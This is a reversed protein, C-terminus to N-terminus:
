TNIARARRLQLALAQRDLAVSSKWTAIKREQPPTLWDSLTQWAEHGTTGGLRINGAATVSIHGGGAHMWWLILAAPIGPVRDHFTCTGDADITGAPIGSASLSLLFAWTESNTTLYGEGTSIWYAYRQSEEVRCITGTPLPASRSESEAWKHALPHWEQLPLGSALASAGKTSSKWFLPSLFLPPSLRDLSLIELGFLQALVELQGPHELRVQIASICLDSAQAATHPLMVNEDGLQKLLAARESISFMGSIRAGVGSPCVAITRPFVALSQHPSSRRQVKILWGGSLLLRQVRWARVNVAASAPLVHGKLDKFSLTARRQYRVLLAESIWQLPAGAPHVVSGPQPLTVSLSSVSLMPLFRPRAAYSEASGAARAGCLEELGALTGGDGDALWEGPMQLRLPPRLPIAGSLKIAAKAAGGQKNSLELELHRANLPTDVSGLPITFGEDDEVLKGSAIVSGNENTIRYSGETAGSLRVRPISAPNLLLLQGYWAGGSVSLRPPRWSSSISAGADDPLASAISALTLTGVTPLLLIQWSNRADAFSYPHCATNLRAAARVISVAVKENVLLCVSAGDHHDSSLSYTGHIDPFLAVCGARLQRWLKAHKLAPVATSLMLLNAPTWGSGDAPQLWFGSEGRDALPRARCWSEVLSRGTEDGVLFIEPSTTDLLDLGFSFSGSGAQKLREASWTILTMAVWFPSDFAAQLQAQAVLTRFQDFEEQFPATFRALARAVAQAVVAFGSEPGLSNSHVVDALRIEDAYAPFALQKSIGILRHKVNHPLLLERCDGHESARRASWKAVSKWQEPLDSLSLTPISAPALLSKLRERFDGVDFTSDDASAALLTLYLSAFSAPYGKGPVYACDAHFRFHNNLSEGTQFLALFAQKAEDPRCSLDGTSQALLRNSAEIRTIPTGLRSVDFFVTRILAANWEGISWARWSMNTLLVGM